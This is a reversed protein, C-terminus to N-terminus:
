KCLVSFSLTRAESNRAFTRLNKESKGKNVHGGRFCDSHHLPDTLKAWEHTGDRFSPAILKGQVM